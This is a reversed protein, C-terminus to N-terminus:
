GEGGNRPQPPGGDRTRDELRVLCHGTDSGVVRIALTHRGYPIEIEVSPGGSGNGAKSGNGNSGVSRDGRGHSAKSGSGNLGASPSSGRARKRGSAGNVRRIAPWVENQAEYLDYSFDIESWPLDGIDVMRIRREQAVKCVAASVWQDEGEATLLDGAAKFVARATEESFSLIGVNEGSVRHAPLKKSMTRLQGDVVEVKMHERGHGSTSDFVIADGEVSVLRELVEPHVVLDSNLVVVPGKVWDRALWLSYLSNTEDWRESVIYEARIDVVDRLVDARYGVVMGVPGIGADALAQLQHEILPRGGVELLCKPLAETQQGLRSGRGAALILAQM